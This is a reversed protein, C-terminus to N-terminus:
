LQELNTEVLAGDVVLSIKANLRGPVGSYVVFNALQGVQITGRTKLGFAKAVNWTVFAAAQKAFEFDSYDRDLLSVQWGAEWILGRAFNTQDSLGVNVGHDLLIQAASRGDGPVKCDQTTWTSPTCRAPNLIVSASSNAIAEAEIWAEEGGIITITYPLQRRALVESILDAGRVRIASCLHSGGKLELENM